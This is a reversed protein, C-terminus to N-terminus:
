SPSAIVFGDRSQGQGLPMQEAIQEEAAANGLGKQGVNWTVCGREM